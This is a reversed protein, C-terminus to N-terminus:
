EVSRDCTGAHEPADGGRLVGTLPLASLDIDGEIRQLKRVTRDIRDGTFDRLDVDLGGVVARFFREAREATHDDTVDEPLPDPRVVASEETGRAAIENRLVIARVNADRCVRADVHTQNRRM